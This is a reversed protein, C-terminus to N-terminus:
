RIRSMAVRFAELDAGDIAVDLLADLVQQDDITRLQAVLDEPIQGFRRELCRLIHARTIDREARNKVRQVSPASEFIKQWSM